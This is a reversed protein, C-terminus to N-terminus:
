YGKKRKNSKFNRKSQKLERLEAYRSAKARSKNRKAITRARTSKDDIHLTSGLKSNRASSVKNHVGKKVGYKLNGLGKRGDASVDHYKQLASLKKDKFFATSKGLVGSNEAQKALNRREEKIDNSINKHYSSLKSGHEKDAKASRELKSEANLKDNYSNALKNYKDEKSIEKSTKDANSKRKGLATIGVGAMAVSGVKSIGKKIPSAVKAGVSNSIGRAKATGGSISDSTAKGALALGTFKSITGGVAGAISTSVAKTFDIMTKFCKKCIKWYLILVGTNIVIMVLVVMVPDGLSISISDRGTIDTNGNSMFLSVLWALGLSVGTFKLLPSILSNWATVVINDMKIASAIIMLVSMIFISVLFFLKLAPIAYVAILDLVIFGIGATISSNEVIRQYFSKYENGTLNSTSNSTDTIDEGTSEALILRLYADYTFAKLEYSQPYLTYSQGLPNIQSFEENFAFTTLMGASTVLVENDFSSYDMLQLLDEYVKDQVKIIKQEVQTLDTMKLGYYKMESRSFVMPRGETINGQADERFYTTPDLPDIVTFKKGRIKITETDAYDCSEMLDVWPSYTNFLREVNYNHWWKYIYEDSDEETPFNTAVGNDYRVKVDNYLFTGYQSSWQNIGENCSRLYPIVYYFLARMNSYDRMEGFGDLADEDYNYFYQQNNITYMDLMKSNIGDSTNGILGGFEESNQQDLINWAFFYFPSETYLGFYYNGLDSKNFTSNDSTWKGGSVGGNIKVLTVRFEDAGMGFTEEEFKTEPDLITSTSNDNNTSSGNLLNMNNGLIRSGATSDLLFSYSRNKIDSVGQNIGFGKDQSFQDSYAVNSNNRNSVIDYLTRGSNYELYTTTDYMLDKEEVNLRLKSETTSNSNYWSDTNYGGIMYGYIDTYDRYLYLAKEADLFTEGSLQQRLTGNLALAIGKNQTLDKLKNEADANVETKKPSLWKLRVRAYSTTDLNDAQNQFISQLYSDKDESKMAEKLEHLYSNHQVLAWYTFKDGYISDSARNITNVTANICMPPFFALLGFLLTGLVARQFTMSGVVCYMVLIMFIVVILYVVINNYEDLLWSTWSLDELSPLTVYGTFGLYKTSGTTSNSSSTGVMDEHWGVFIASIKTKFWKVIYAIGQTPHLLYYLWNFLEEKRSDTVEIEDWNIDTSGVSPFSDKAYAYNVVYTSKDGTKSFDNYYALAYSLYIGTLYVKASGSEVINLQNSGVISSFNSSATGTLPKGDPDFIGGKGDNLLNFVSYDDSNKFANLDDIIILDDIVKEDFTSTFTYSGKTNKSDLKSSYIGWNLFRQKQNGGDKTFISIDEYLDKGVGLGIGFNEFFNTRRDLSQETDGRKIRWNKLNLLSGDGTYLAFKYSVTEVSSSSANKDKEKNKNTDIVGEKNAEQQVKNANEVTPTFSNNEDEQSGGGTISPKVWDNVELSPLTRSEMVMGGSVVKKDDTTNSSVKAVNSVIHGQESENLMFLNVVNLNEGVDKVGSKEETYWAYPNVCAPVLVYKAIGYDCLINGFCDVYLRAGMANVKKKDEESLKNYEELELDDLISSGVGSKYNLNDNLLAYTLSSATFIGGKNANNQLNINILSQNNGADAIADSASYLKESFKTDFVPVFTGGNDWFLCITKNALDARALRKGDEVEDALGSFYDMFSFYSAVAHGNEEFYDTPKTGDKTYNGYTFNKKGRVMLHAVDKVGDSTKEGIYLPKATDMSMQWITSVLQNAVDKDFSVGEVLAEVMNEKAKEDDRSRSLETVMPIYFNSLFVGLLQLEDAGLQSVDIDTVTKGKALKLYNSLKTNSNEVDAKVKVIDGFSSILVSFLLLWVM